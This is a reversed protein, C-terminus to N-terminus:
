WSVCVIYEGPDILGREHLLYLVSSNQYVEVQKTDLIEQMKKRDYETPAKDSLTYRQYSCNGCEEVAVYEYDELGLHEKAFAEIDGYDIFRVVEESYKLKDM